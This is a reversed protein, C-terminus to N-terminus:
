ASHNSHWAIGGPPVDTSPRIGPKLLRQFLSATSTILFSSRSRQFDRSLCCSIRADDPIGLFATLIGRACELMPGKGPHRLIASSEGLFLEAEGEKLLPEQSGAALIWQPRSDSFPEVVTHTVFLLPPTGVQLM